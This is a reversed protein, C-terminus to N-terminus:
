VLTHRTNGQKRGKVVIKRMCPCQVGDFRYSLFVGLGQFTSGTAVPTEHGPMDVSM